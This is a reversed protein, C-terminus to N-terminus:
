LVSGFVHGLPLPDMSPAWALAVATWSSCGDLKARFHSLTKPFVRRGVQNEEYSRHYGRALYHQAISRHQGMFFFVMALVKYLMM